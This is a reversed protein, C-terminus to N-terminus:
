LYSKQLLLCPTLTTDEKWRDAANRGTIFPEMRECGATNRKGEGERGGNLISVTPFSSKPISPLLLLLLITYWGVALHEM